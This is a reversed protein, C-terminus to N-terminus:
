KKRSFTTGNVDQTVETLGANKLGEVIDQMMKSQKEESLTEFERDYYREFKWGSNEDYSFLGEHSFGQGYYSLIVTTDDFQEVFNQKSLGRKDVEFIDKLNM